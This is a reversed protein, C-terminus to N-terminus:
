FYFTCFTCAGGEGWFINRLKQSVPCTQCLTSCLWHFHSVLQLARVTRVTRLTIFHGSKDNNEVEDKGERGLKCSPEAAALYIFLPCCM